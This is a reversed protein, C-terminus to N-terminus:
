KVSEVANKFIYGKEGGPLEVYHWNGETKIVRLRDGSKVKGTLDSRASPASRINVDSWIVRVELPVDSQIDSKGFSKNHIFSVDNLCRLSVVNIKGPEIAIKQTDIINGSYDKIRLTIDAGNIRGSYFYIQKPAMTWARIDAKSTMINLGSLCIKYLFGAGKQEAQDILAKDRITQVILRLTAKTIKGPLEEEYEKLSLLDLNTLAELTGIVESGSDVIEISSINSQTPNIRALSFQTITGSIPNLFPLSFNEKEPAFGIQAFVYINAKSLVSAPDNEYASLMRKVYSNGTMANANKLQPRMNEFEGNLGFNIASLLYTYSNEYSNRIRRIEDKQADSLAAKENLDKVMTDLNLAGANSGLAPQPSKIAKAKQEVEAKGKEVQAAEFEAYEKILRHRNIARQTEVRASEPQGMMLYNMAKIDHIYVKEYHAMEYEESGEGFLIDMSNAAAGRANIRAREERATYKGYAFELVENSKEFEGLLPYIAGLELLYVLDANNRIQGKDDYVKKELWDANLEGKKIISDKVLHMQATHMQAACGWFFLSSGIILIM